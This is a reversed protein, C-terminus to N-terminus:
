RWEKLLSEIKEPRETPIGQEICDQVVSDLIVAMEEKTYDSTGRYALVNTCGPIKSETKDTVWGLGRESWAKIFTDVAENKMCYIDFAGCGYIYHRYLDEKPIRLKEQLSGLLSWLYGNANLTRKGKKLEVNVETGLYEELSSAINSGSSFEFKTRKDKFDFHIKELKCELKM